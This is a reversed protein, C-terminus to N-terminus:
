LLLLLVPIIAIPAYAYPKDDEEEKPVEAEDM